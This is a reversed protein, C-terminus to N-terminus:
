PTEKDPKDENNAPPPTEAPPQSADAQDPAAEAEDAGSQPKDAPQDTAAQQAKLKAIAAKAIDSSESKLEIAAKQLCEARVTDFSADDTVQPAMENAVDKLKKIDIVAGDELSLITEYVIQQAMLNYTEGPAQTFAERLKRGIELDRKAELALESGFHSFEAAQQYSALQKFIRQSISKQRDNHGVGGVRSVSLGTAVPPRVGDRFLDMDMIFQGDTISMINTPLYSTIDGGPVHVIPFCNFTKGNGALRGARELLSSHAYFMDGPYSERGPSVGALLSIERYAHAHNTLDDYIVMVNKDRQQWLHEGIACAVYPALYSTVLSDFMTSVIVIANKMADNEELKTLLADVDTRRKAILAYVVIVDTNKQNIAIQTMMTSKGSKAEGIVALRQGYVVPFLLDVVAVGTELQSDLAQRDILAPASNFVPWVDDPAIPGKGDLPEGTVSIVRGIFGEGVKTVLEQHQLVVPVGVRLYESGLHMVSVFDEGVERVIGKSGDGFMVLANPHVGSLGNTTVLYQNVAIVEGVPNGKEVLYHFHKESM